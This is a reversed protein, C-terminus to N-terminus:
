IKSSQEGELSVMWNGNFDSKTKHRKVGAAACARRYVGGYGEQRCKAELERSSMQGDALLTQILAVCQDCKGSGGKSTSLLEDASFQTNGIFEVRSTPISQGHDEIFKSEIRYAISKPKEALNCKASALIYAGEESPHEAAIMVSRMAAGIARSGSGRDLASTGDKKNFHRIFLVACQQREAIRAIPRLYSRVETNSNLNVDLAYADIPDVIVLRAKTDSIAQELADAHDILNVPTPEGNDGLRVEGFTEIKSLDAGAATLRPGLTTSLSDEDTLWIVSRGAATEDATLKCCLQSKGVGPMGDLCTLAGVPLWGDWLWSTSLM